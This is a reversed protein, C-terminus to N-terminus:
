MLVKSWFQCSQWSVSLTWIQDSDPYMGLKSNVSENGLSAKWSSIGTQKSLEQKVWGIRVGQFYIIRIYGLVFLCYFLYKWMQKLMIMCCISLQLTSTKLMKILFVLLTSNIPMKYNWISSVDMKIHNVPLGTFCVVQM